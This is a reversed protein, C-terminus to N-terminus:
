KSFRLTTGKENVIFDVKSGEILPFNQTVHGVPFGFCIPYQYGQLLESLARYTNKEISWEKTDMKKFNGIILGSLNDLVGGLKLDYLMREIVYYREGVDEIFLVTGKAPIDYPTARLGYFVSVNGGRLIGTAQGRHDFVNAPIHYEPLDGRLIDKLYLLSRDSDPEYAMQEAMPAHLSAVGVSQAVNHLATIDSYGIIWKPNRRFSSLDLKDILHVVGYGGRSCLIAKVNQNDLAHQLDGLRQDVTGSYDGYAGAAHKELYPVYGWEKLRRLAGELQVSDNKGAPSLIAVSDGAKLFPPLVCARSRKMWSCESSTRCSCLCILVLNFAVWFLFFKRM